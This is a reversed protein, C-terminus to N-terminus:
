GLEAERQNKGPRNCYMNGLVWGGLGCVMVLSRGLVCIDREYGLRMEKAILVKRM